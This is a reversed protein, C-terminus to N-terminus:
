EGAARLAGLLAPVDAQEDEVVPVALEKGYTGHLDSGAAVLMGLEDALAKWEPHLRGRYHAELGILDIERQWEQIFPRLEDPATAYTMPHALVVTPKVKQFIAYAETIPPTPLPRVRGRRWVQKEFDTPDGLRCGPAPRRSEFPLKTVDLQRDKVVRRLHGFGPAAFLEPSKPEPLNEYLELAKRVVEPYAISIGLGAAANLFLFINETDVQYLRNFYADFEAARGAVRETWRSGLTTLFHFEIDPHDPHSGSIEASLFPEIGEARCADAFERCGSFRNHDSLALHSVAPNSAKAAAPLEAPMLRGDSYLSHIHLDLVYSM